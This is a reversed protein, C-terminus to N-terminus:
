APTGIATATYTLRLIMGDTDRVALKARLRITDNVEGEWTVEDVAWGANTANQDNAISGFAAMPAVGDLKNWKPGIEWDLSDRRWDTSTGQFHFLVVGTLVMVRGGNPVDFALTPNPIVQDPTIAM